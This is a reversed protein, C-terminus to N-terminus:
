VTHLVSGTRFCLLPARSSWDRFQQHIHSLKACAYAFSALDPQRHNCCSYRATSLVHYLAGDIFLCGHGDLSLATFETFRGVQMFSDCKKLGRLRQYRAAQAMVIERAPETSRAVLADGLGRGFDSLVKGDKLKVTIEVVVTVYRQLVIRPVEEVIKQQKHEDM